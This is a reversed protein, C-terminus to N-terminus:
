DVKVADKRINNFDDQGTKFFFFQLDLRIGEWLEMSGQLIITVTNKYHLEREIANWITVIVTSRLM